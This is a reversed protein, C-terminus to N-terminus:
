TRESVLTEMTVGLGAIRHLFVAHAAAEESDYVVDDLFRPLEGRKGTLVLIRYTAFPQDAYLAYKGTAPARRFYNLVRALDDSHPGNPKRQHETILASTILPRIARAMHSDFRSLCVPTRDYITPDQPNM